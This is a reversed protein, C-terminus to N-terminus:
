GSNVNDHFSALWRFIRLKEEMSLARIIARCVQTRDVLPLEAPSSTVRRSM